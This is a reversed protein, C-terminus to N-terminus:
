LGMSSFFDPITNNFAGTKQKAVDLSAILYRRQDEFATASFLESLWSDLALEFNGPENWDDDDTRNEWEVKTAGTLHTSFNEYKDRSEDWGLVKASRRFSRITM